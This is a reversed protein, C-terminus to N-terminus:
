LGAVPFISYRHGILDDLNGTDTANRKRFRHVIAGDCSGCM